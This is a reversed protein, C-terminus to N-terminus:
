HCQPHKHEDGEKVEAALKAKCAALEGTLRLVCGLYVKSSGSSKHVRPTKVELDVKM